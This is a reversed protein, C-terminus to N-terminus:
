HSGFSGAWNDDAFRSCNPHFGWRTRYQQRGDDERRARISTHNERVFDHTFDPYLSTVRHSIEFKANADRLRKGFNRRAGPIHAGTLRHFNGSL